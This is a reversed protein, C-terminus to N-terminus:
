GLGLFRWLAALPSRTAAAEAAPQPAFREMWEPAGATEAIARAMEEATAFREARDEDMAHRMLEAIDPPLAHLAEPAVQWSPPPRKRTLMSYLTAALGYLDSEPGVEHGDDEQEPARYGQTGLSQGPRTQAPLVGDPHRAIGFDALVVHGKVYLVNDPKVDRHVLGLGHVAHLASAIAFATRLAEDPAMRGESNLRQTLSRDALDLTGTQGEAAALIAAAEERTPWRTPAIPHKIRAPPTWM